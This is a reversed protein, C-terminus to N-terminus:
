SIAQEIPRGPQEGLGYPLDAHAGSETDANIILDHDKRWDADVNEPTHEAVLFL